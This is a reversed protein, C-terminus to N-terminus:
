HSRPRHPGRHRPARGTTVGLGPWALGTATTTAPRAIPPARPRGSAQDAPPRGGRRGGRRHRALGRYSAAARWAPAAASQRPRAPPPTPPPPPTVPPNVQTETAHRDTRPSSWAKAVATLWALESEEDVGGQRALDLPRAVRDGGAARTRLAIKLWVATAVADRD